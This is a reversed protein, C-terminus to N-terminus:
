KSLSDISNYATKVHTIWGEKSCLNHERLVNEIALIVSSGKQTEKEQNYNLCHRQVNTKGTSAELSYELLRCLIHSYITQLTIISIGGKKTYM